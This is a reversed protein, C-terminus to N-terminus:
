ILVKGIMVEEIWCVVYLWIVDLIFYGVNNVRMFEM